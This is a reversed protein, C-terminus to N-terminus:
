NRKPKNLTANTNQWGRTTRKKWAEFYNRESTFDKFRLDTSRNNVVYYKLTQLSHELNTKNKKYEQYLPIATELQQITM